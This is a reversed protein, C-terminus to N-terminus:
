RSSVLRWNTSDWNLERQACWRIDPPRGGYRCFDLAVKCAIKPPHFFAKPVIFPEGGYHLVATGAISCDRVAVFHRHARPDRETIDLFFGLGQKSTVELTAKNLSNELYDFTGHGCGLPDQWYEEEKAFLEGIFAESPNREDEGLPSNYIVQPM